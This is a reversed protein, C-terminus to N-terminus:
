SYWMCACNGAKTCAHGGPELHNCKASATHMVNDSPLFPHLSPVPPPPPYPIAQVIRVCDSACWGYVPSASYHPNGRQLSGKPSRKLPPAATSGKQPSGGLYGRLNLAQPYRNKDRRRRRKDGRSCPFHGRVWRGLDQLLLGQELLSPHFASHLPECLHPGAKM